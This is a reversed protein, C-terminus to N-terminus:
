RWSRGDAAAGLESPPVDLVQRHEGGLAVRQEVGLAAEVPGHVADPELEVMQEAEADQIRARHHRQGLLPPGHRRPVVALSAGYLFDRSYWLM